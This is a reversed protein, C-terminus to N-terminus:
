DEARLHEGSLLTGAPLTQVFRHQLLAEYQDPSIGFGPRRFEVAVDALKQGASVSQLLHVSRRIRKRKSLEEAHLIRRSSGFAIEVDRITQIFQRMEHPELSFVHEVSRTTRDETITKELLNAGVALAAVDMEWGPTHDSFAVPYPFMQKLTKIINLNISELRAPYGSPCQHIIINENGESRIVDIAQEVEGLSANGTDLQLCMGTRAAKRILPFHNVDASAIKISDCNLNELLAIEDDFGVTAFFALGLGDCYTKLIRWEAHSLSRRCLIDYLPEEVTELRGSARDVLVDYSFLLQKDAVLRDPDLIQFKVADAGAQRALEVLRKASALGDHTPGAEYTIFCPEGDGVKRKGFHVAM